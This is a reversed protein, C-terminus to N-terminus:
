TPSPTPFQREILQVLDGTSLQCVQQGSWVLARNSGPDIGVLVLDPLKEVLEFRFAPRVAGIDFIVVDPQLACLDGEMAAPGDLTTVELESYSTLSASLGALVVTDGYL